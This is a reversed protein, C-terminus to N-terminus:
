QGESFWHCRGCWAFQAQLPYGCTKCHYDLAAHGSSTARHAASALFIRKM